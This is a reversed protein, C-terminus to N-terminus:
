GSTGETRASINTMGPATSSSRDRRRRSAASDWAVTEPRGGPLPAVPLNPAIVDGPRLGLDLGGGTPHLPGRM